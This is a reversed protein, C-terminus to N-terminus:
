ILREHSRQSMWREYAVIHVLQTKGKLRKIFADRGTKVDVVRFGRGKRSELAIGVDAAQVRSRKSLFDGFAVAEAIQFEAKSQTNEIKIRDRLEKLAVRVSDLTFRPPRSGCVVKGAPTTFWEAEERRVQVYGQVSMIAVIQGAVAASIKLSECMNQVTWSVVGRTEKLFSWVAAPAIDPMGLPKPSGGQPFDM